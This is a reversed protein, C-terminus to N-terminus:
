NKWRMVLALQERYRLDSLEAYFADNFGGLLEPGDARNAIIVALRRLTVTLQSDDAAHTITATIYNLADTYTEQGQM